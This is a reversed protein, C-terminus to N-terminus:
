VGGGIQRVLASELAALNVSCSNPSCSRASFELAIRTRNMEDILTVNGRPAPRSVLRWIRGHRVFRGAGHGDRGRAEAALLSEANADGLIGKSESRPSYAGALFVAGRLGDFWGECDDYTLAM